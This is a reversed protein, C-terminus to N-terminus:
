TKLLLQTAIDMVSDLFERSYDEDRQMHNKGSRIHNALERWSPDYIDTGELLELLKEAADVLRRPGYLKPEDLLGHASSIMFCLLKIAQAKLQANTSEKLDM